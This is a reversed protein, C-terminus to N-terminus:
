GGIKKDPVAVVVAADPSSRQPYVELARELCDMAQELRNCDLVFAMRVEDRGRGPTAYFGPGPSLMVTKGEHQFDELLWRCFHEADRIPFRAFCYFAGGPLYSTVGPMQSLRRWVTQRRRDYEAQVEELYAADDELMAEALWQGLGPPSLRLRAYRGLAERLAANRTALVGIRAGCASYRKSVSDVVVAHQDLGPLTLVSRFVAGDYCFERYVEDAILFLDHKRALAGLAELAEAGYVAGTPNNPNCILIGRTRPGIAQEFAEVPPLAFGDEIHCPLPRIRVGAIHAFGNYNAYFPEPVLLEDGENFCAFLTLQLAESAGTMIMLEDAALGIGYRAYYGTMKDRLSANGEAPSYALVPELRHALKRLAQPPTPIDPQGINLHFVEVGRSKAADALHALKRFPSFPTQQSRQSLAPM